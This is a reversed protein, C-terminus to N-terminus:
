LPHLPAPAAIREAFAAIQRTLAPDALAAAAFALAGAEYEPDPQRWSTATKAERMAKTLYGAARHYGSPWAGLLTQWLLYETGPEPAGGSPLAVARAHGRAAATAAGRAREAVAAPA